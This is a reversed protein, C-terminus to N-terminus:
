RRPGGDLLAAMVRLVDSLDPFLFDPSCAALEELSYQGTAVAVAVAGSARACGIDLPTDGIVLVHEPSIPQGVLSEARQVAVAPLRSRDADDSGYAGLRFYPWLGTPALKIRAASEINGTLLGVVARPHESLRRVLEGVGPMLAVQGGDGIEASLEEIYRDYFAPLRAAIETPGLGAAGMLDSVIRSDTKGRSDYAETPGTVGYVALLARIMARRGAGRTAVLTGDVDFLFLRM